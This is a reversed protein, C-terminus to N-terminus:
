RRIDAIPSGQAIKNGQADHRAFSPGLYTVLQQEACIKECTNLYKHIVDALEGQARLSSGDEFTIVYNV